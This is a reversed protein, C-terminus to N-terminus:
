GKPGAMKTLEIVQKEGVLKRHVVASVLEPYFPALAARVSDDDLAVGAPLPIEADGVKAVYSTIQVTEAM